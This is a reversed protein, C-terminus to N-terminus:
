MAGLPLFVPSYHIEVHISPFSRTWFQSAIRVNEQHSQYLVRFVETPIDSRRASKPGFGVYYSVSNSIFDGCIEIPVQM